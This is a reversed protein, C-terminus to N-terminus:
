ALSCHDTVSIVLSGTVQTFRLAIYLVDKLVLIILLLQLLVSHLTLAIMALLSALGNHPLCSGSGILYFIDPFTLVLFHGM